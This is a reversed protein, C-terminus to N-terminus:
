LAGTVKFVVACKSPAERPLLIALGDNTQQWSLKRGDGLLEVNVIKGIQLPSDQALSKVQM